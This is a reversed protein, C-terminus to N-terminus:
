LAFAFMGIMREVCAEIGFAELSEVLTESDSSGWWRAFAGSMEARMGMHNYIEGNFVLVHRGSASHIPQQGCAGLGVVSLRRHVLTVNGEVWSGEEDPGRHRLGRAADEARGVGARGLIGAFGCM